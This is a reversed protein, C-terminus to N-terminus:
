RSSKPGYSLAKPYIAMDTNGMMAADPGTGAAIATQFKDKYGSWPISTVSIKVVLNEREFKTVFNGMKEGENGM